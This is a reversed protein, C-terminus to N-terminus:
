QAPDALLLQYQEAAGLARLLRGTLRTTVGGPLQSLEATSATTVARYENVDRGIRPRRDFTSMEPDFRGLGAIGIAAVGLIWPGMYGCHDAVASAVRVVRLTLVPVVDLLLVQGDGRWEDSLRTTLLRVEGDESLEFELLDENFRAGDMARRLQRDPALGGTTMAAGDTRRAFTEADALDPSFRGDIVPWIGADRLERFRQGWDDGHVVDLLMERRPAVPAAVVFFHAQARLDPPVPDRRVYADLLVAATEEVDGRARHHRVVETDSLRIKTKDGRGFYTGDVMHPATGSAGVSVLVYGLTPDTESPITQCSVALPPDPITRAVQEIREPLGVLPVPELTPPAEGHEDVGIILAGGDVAFQALDRALEKNNGKGPSLERKLELYHTEELLGNSLAERLDAETTPTWRPTNASLYM